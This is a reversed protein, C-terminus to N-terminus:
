SQAPSVRKVGRINFAQRARQQEDPPLEFVDGLVNIERWWCGNIFTNRIPFLFARLKLAMQEADDGDKARSLIQATPEEYAIVETSNHTGDGSTGGSRILSVYPGVDDKGSPIRAKAGKFLNTGYILGLQQDIARQDTTLLYILDPMFTSLHLM